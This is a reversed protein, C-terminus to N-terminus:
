GDAIVGKLLEKHISPKIKISKKYFATNDIKKFIKTVAESESSKEIVIQLTGAATVSQVYGLGLVIELNDDDDQYCVTAYSGQNFLDNKEVIFVFKDKIKTIRKVQPLRYVSSDKKTTCAGYIAICILYAGIIVLILVWMPILCDASFIWCLINIALIVVVTVSGLLLKDVHNWFSKM